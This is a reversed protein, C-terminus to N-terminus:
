CRNRLEEAARAFVEEFIKKHSASVPKLVFTGAKRRIKEDAPRIGIRLRWFDSTKLAAHVSEVGHHGAAGGGFQLKYMGVVLDSDDHAILLNEPHANASRLKRVVFKGSENVYAGSALVFMRLPIRPLQGDRLRKCYEAFLAGANHYTNKYEAGPNGLGIILKIKRRPADM